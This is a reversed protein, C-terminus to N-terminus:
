TECVFMVNVGVHSDNVLVLILDRDEPTLWCISSSPEWGHPIQYAAQVVKWIWSVGREWRATLLLQVPM